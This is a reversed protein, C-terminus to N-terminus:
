KPEYNGFGRLSTSKSRIDSVASNNKARKITSFADVHNLAKVSVKLGFLQEFTNPCMGYDEGNIYINVKRTSSSYYAQTKLIECSYMLGDQVINGLVYVTYLRDSLRKAKLWIFGGDSLCSYEPNSIIYSDLDSV